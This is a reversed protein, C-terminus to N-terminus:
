SDPDTTFSFPSRLYRKPVVAILQDREDKDIIECELTHGVIMKELELKALIGPLTSAAPKDMGHIRIKEIRKATSSASGDQDLVSIEFTNGDVISTVLGSLKKKKM